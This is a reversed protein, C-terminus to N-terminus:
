VFTDTLKHLFIHLRHGDLKHLYYQDGLQLQTVRSHAQVQHLSHILFTFWPLIQQCCQLGLAQIAELIDEVLRYERPLAGQPFPFPSLLFPKIRLFLVM